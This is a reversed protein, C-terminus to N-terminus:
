HHENYRYDLMYTATTGTIANLRGIDNENKVTTFAWVFPSEITRLFVKIIDEDVDQPEELILCKSHIKQGSSDTVIVSSMFSNYDSVWSICSRATDRVVLEDELRAAAERGACMALMLTKKIYMAGLVLMVDSMARYKDAVTKTVITGSQLVNLVDGVNEDFSLEIKTAFM